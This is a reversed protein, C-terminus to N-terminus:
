VNQGVTARCYGIPHNPSDEGRELLFGLGFGGGNSHYLPLVTYIVDDPSVDMIQLYCAQGKARFQSIFVPKPLGPLCFYTRM